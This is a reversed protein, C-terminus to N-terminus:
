KPILLWGHIAYSPDYWRGAVVGAANVAFAGSGYSNGPSQLQGPIEFVHFDGDADRVFSHSLNNIDEVYGVTTGAVNLANVWSGEFAGSGSDPVNYDTIRGDPTRLYERGVNNRDFYFGAIVGLDNVLANGTGIAGSLSGPPSFTTFNADPTRLFGHNFGHSDAVTGAIAGLNNISVAYTGQYAGTGAESSDFTNITGDLTRLFGHGTNNSDVYYGTVAGWDNISEAFTGQNAGAGAGSVDITVIQGYATRLFGHYVHNKDQDWGTVAGFDNIANPCTGGIGYECGYGPDPNAGPVDFESFKGDFTRVYGHTGGSSDTVDGVITGEFNIGWVATGQLEGSSSGPAVFTILEQAPAQAPMALAAACLALAMFSTLTEIIQCVKPNTHM